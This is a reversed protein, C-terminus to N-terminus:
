KVLLLKGAAVLNEAELCYFYVGAALNSGDFTIEHLGAGRWGDVLTVVLRGSIDYIELHVQAAKPLAFSLTATPNFPNPYVSHVAFDGPIPEECIRNEDWGILFWGYNHSPSDDGPLKEFPFSDGALQQWTFHDRIYANYTYTGAPAYAPVYQTIDPRNISGGPPLNINERTFVPYPSGDPLTIMTWFDVSFVFAENYTIEVDFQFNGGTAPIQIPPNQPSLILNLEPQVTNLPYHYGMDVVGEDQMGDTRTTGLIVTSGPDGADVCPSQQTQGSAIQSLCCSELLTVAFLPDADINGIGIYGGEVCSYTVTSNPTVESDANDWIITNSIVLNNGSIIYEGNYGVGSPSGGLGVSLMDHLTFTCNNIAVLSTDDSWISYGSGGAGDAGYGDSGSGSTGGGGEGGDGGYGDGATNHIFVNNVPVTHSSSCYIVGGSGGDGIGGDGGDGGSGWYLGFGFGGDGASGGYASGTYNYRFTNGYISIEIIDSLFIAGGHGAFAAGGDGGNGGFVWDGVISGGEGGQGGWADGTRNYSITNFEILPNSNQCYIAGGRGTEANEGPEGNEGSGGSAGDEGVVDRTRCHTVLCHSILVRSSNKLYFGGGHMLSDPPPAATGYSIECYALKSIDMPSSDTDVFDLAECGEAADIATFVISDTETGVALLQGECSLRCLPEMLIVVGPEIELTSNSIIICNGEIYYPSGALDWVGSVEGGPIHTEAQIPNSSLLSLFLTFVLLYKMKDEVSINTM